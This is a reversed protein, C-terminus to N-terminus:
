GHWYMERPWMESTRPRLCGSWVGEERIDQSTAFQKSIRLSINRRKGFKQNGESLNWGFSIMFRKPADKFVIWHSLFQLKMLGTVQVFVPM